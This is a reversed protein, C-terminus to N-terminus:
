KNKTHGVWETLPKIANPGRMIFLVLCTGTKTVTRELHFCNDAMLHYCLKEWLGEPLQSSGSGLEWKGTCTCSAFSCQCCALTNSSCTESKWASNPLGHGGRRM